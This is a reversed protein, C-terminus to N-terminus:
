GPPFREARPGPVFTVAIDDVRGIYGPLATAAATWRVLVVATRENGTALYGLLGASNVWFQNVRPRYGLQDLQDVLGIFEETDLLKPGLSDGVYVPGTRADLHPQVLTVLAEVPPSSLAAPSPLRVLQVCLVSCVIVAAGALAAEARSWSAPSRRTAGSLSAAHAGGGSSGISNELGDGGASQIRFMASGFGILALIPLTVEWVLLYGYFHGTVRTGAAVTAVLGILSIVGANVAFRNSRVRGLGISAVGFLVAFATIALAVIRYAPASGLIAHMVGGPGLVLMGDVTVVAWLGSSLSQGQHPSTFFREILTLNGPRSTFEQILPPIWMSAAIALGAAPLRRRRLWGKTTRVNEAPRPGNEGVDDSGPFRRRVRDSGAIMLVVSIGFSTAVLPVTSLDTQVVFSGVVLAGVLMTPARVPAATCLVIFLLLPMITITPNWPSVLAGLVGESYTVASAGGPALVVCLVVVCIGAWLGAVANVRRRVVAIVGIGALANLLAAGFFDARAGDGLIRAPFSLIYFEAPGPHNWGFHDFPGVEQRWAMAQRTHLDILALDDPLLIQGGFLLFRVLIITFPIAVMGYALATGVTSRIGIRHSIDGMRQSHYTCRTRGRTGVRRRIATLSESQARAGHPEWWVV